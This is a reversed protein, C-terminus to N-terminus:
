HHVVCPTRHVEFVGRSEKGFMYVEPLIGTYLLFSCHSLHQQRAEILSRMTDVSSFKSYLSRLFFIIGLLTWVLYVRADYKSCFQVSCFVTTSSITVKPGPLSLPILLRLGTTVLRHVRFPLSFLLFRGVCVWLSRLCTCFCCCSFQVSSFSTPRSISERRGPPNPRYLGRGYWVM